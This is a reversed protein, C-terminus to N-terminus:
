AYAFIAKQRRKGTRLAGGVLGFGLIMMAWTSPEPVAATATTTYNATLTTPNDGFSFTTGNQQFTGYVLGVNTFNAFTPDNVANQNPFFSNGDGFSGSFGGGNGTFSFGFIDPGFQTGTSLEFTGSTWNYTQPGSSGITVVAKLPRLASLAFQCSNSPVSGCTGMNAFLTPDYSMVVSFTKGGLNTGSVGFPSAGYTSGYDLTGGFSLVQEAATAATPVVASAGALLAAVVWKKM